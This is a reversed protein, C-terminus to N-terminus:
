HALLAEQRDRDAQELTGPTIYSRKTMEPSEHGLARAVAEAAVGSAVATSASVGRLAHACVRPVGALKCFRGTQEAVWDRWHPGGGEAPFLLAGPLKYRTRSALLPRLPEPVVVSRHSARTKPDFGIAPNPTIRLVRGQDDLDRVTRSVVESARLGLLLALLVALAGDDMAAERMCMKYLHRAEDITLQEKGHRRKGIGKVEGLPHVRIWRQGICWSLFTRAQALYNRHSD